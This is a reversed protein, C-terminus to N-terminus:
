EAKKVHLRHRSFAADTLTCAICVPICLLFWLLSFLLSIQGLLNFPLHSYNWIGWELWLNVICGAVFEIVTIIGAGILARFLLSRHSLKRNALFILCVCIGGCLAMSWHSFGRFAVELSYYGVAGIPFLVLFILPYDNKRSSFPIKM